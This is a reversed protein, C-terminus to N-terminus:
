GADLAIPANSTSRPGSVCRHASAGLREHLYSDVKRSGYLRHALCSWCATRGPLFLPGLWVEIGVPKVLFWPRDSALAEQNSVSLDDRLYDDALVVRHQGESSVQVGLSTFLSQFPAPDIDGYSFISVTTEQLRRVADEGSVDLWDWFAGVTFLHGSEDSRKARQGQSDTGLRRCM